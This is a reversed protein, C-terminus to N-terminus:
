VFNYWSINDKAKFKCIDTKNEYLYSEDGNDHLILRFKTNTISSNIYNKKEQVIPVM